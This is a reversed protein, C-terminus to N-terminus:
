NFLWLIAEEFETKWFLENHKGQPNVKSKIQARPFGLELLRKEIALTNEEMNEGELGGVLLYLRSQKQNGYFTTFDNVQDSFWFSTSFAGIKGFVDAYKFGAYYSILGGLSSGVIATHERSSLTRYKADIMPKVKTVLGHIYTEGFGGGYRQNPWPTYENIREQKGNEIGVVIFGKGTKEFLANMTEDVEWEGAYATSADFLNQGDHMYIVPYKSSSKHYNPPLYVWIKHALDNGSKTKITLTEELLYVNKTKTSDINTARVSHGVFFLVLFLLYFLNRMEKSLSNFIRENSVM